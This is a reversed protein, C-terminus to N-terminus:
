LEGGRVISLEKTLKIELEKYEKVIQEVRMLDILQSNVVLKLEDILEKQEEVKLEIM